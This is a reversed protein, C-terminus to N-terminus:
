FGSNKTLNKKGEVCKLEFTKIPTKIENLLDLVKTQYICIM